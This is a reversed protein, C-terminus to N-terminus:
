GRLEAAPRDHSLGTEDGPATARSLPEEAPSLFAERMRMRRAMPEWGQNMRRSQGPRERDFSCWPPSIGGRWALRWQKWHSECFQIQGRGNEFGHEFM